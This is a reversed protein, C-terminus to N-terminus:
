AQACERLLLEAVHPWEMRVAELLHAEAEATIRERGGPPLVIQLSQADRRTPWEVSVPQVGVQRCYEFATHMLTLEELDPPPPVSRVTPTAATVTQPKAIMCHELTCHDVIENGAGYGASNGFFTEPDNPYKDGHRKWAALLAGLDDDPHRELRTAIASAQMYAWETAYDLEGKESETCVGDWLGASQMFTLVRECLIQNQRTVKYLEHSVLAHPSTVGSCLTIPQGQTTADGTVNKDRTVLSPFVFQNSRGLRRDCAMFGANILSAVCRIVTRRTIGLQRAIRTMGPFCKGSEGNLHDRICAYVAICSGSLGGTLLRSPVM